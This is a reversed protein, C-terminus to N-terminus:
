PASAIIRGTVQLNTFRKAIEASQPTLAVYVIVVRADTNAAPTADTATQRKVEYGTRTVIGALPQPLADAQLTVQAGVAVRGILTQYVEIEATMEDINGLNVIGESGPKEGPRVHISLITGAIPARVYAKDLEIRSRELEVRAGELARQAVVIDPQDEIRDFLYRSLTAKAREVDQVAQEYAARKADFSAEAAFGKTRLETVRDFDRKANVVGSEARALTARAEARSAIATEEAQRLAAERSAITAVTAALSAKLSAENDLVAIVTGQAVRDGEKVALTAIRADGAGFPPAIVRVDGLPLLRGLGAVFGTGPSLALNGPRFSSQSPAAEPRLQVASQEPSAANPRPPLLGVLKMLLPPQFYVGILGGIMFLPLLMPVFKFNSPVSRRKPSAPEPEQDLVRKVIEIPLADSTAHGKEDPTLRGDVEESLAPVTSLRGM